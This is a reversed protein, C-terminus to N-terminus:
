LSLQHIFYRSPVRTAAIVAVTERAYDKMDIAYNHYKRSWEKSAMTSKTVM